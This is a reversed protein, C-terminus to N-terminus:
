RSLNGWWHLLRTVTCKYPMSPRSAKLFSKGNKTLYVIGGECWEGDADIRILDLRWAKTFRPDAELCELESSSLLIKGGATDITALFQVLPRSPKPDSKTAESSKLSEAAPM